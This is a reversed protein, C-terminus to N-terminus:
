TFVYNVGKECREGVFPDKCYCTVKGNTVSCKGNNYCPNPNCQDLVYFFLLLTLNMYKLFMRYICLAINM